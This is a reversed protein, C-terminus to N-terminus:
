LEVIYSLSLWHSVASGSVWVVDGATANGYSIGLRYQVPEAGNPSGAIIPASVDSGQKKGCGCGM